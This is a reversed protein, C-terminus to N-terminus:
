LNPLIGIKWADTSALSPITTIAETLLTQEASTQNVIAVVYADYLGCSKLISTFFKYCNKDLKMWTAPCGSCVLVCHLVDVAGSMRFLRSYLTICGRRRVGQVYSFVIYYM